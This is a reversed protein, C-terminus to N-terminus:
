PKTLRVTIAGARLSALQAFADPSLDIIANSQIGPGVIKVTVQKGNSINTVLVMTGSLLTNHTASLPPANYWTAKGVGYVVEKTGFYIIEEVPEKSTDTKILKRTKEEGNERIIEYTLKKEGNQGKQAIREEGKWMEPDEKRITKYTIKEKEDINTKEVRTIEIKLGADIGHTLAPDIKDLEGLEISKEKLFEDINQAFTRYERSEKADLVTLNLSRKISIKAGLGLELDPFITIKDQPYIILQNDNVFDKFNSTSSEVFYNDIKIRSDEKDQEAKAVRVGLVQGEVNNEEPIINIVSIFLIPLLVLALIKSWM